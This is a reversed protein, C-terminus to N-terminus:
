QHKNNEKSRVFAIIKQWDERGLYHLGKRLHYGINGDHFTDGVSPLKDNCIFGVVGLQEYFKSAACCNLFESEPDAWQDQSSSSVYVYRPAITALLYHQDFLMSDEKNAYNEYNPCFWYGYCNCIAAIDEGQKNRSIAAGSCGSNNSHVFTFRPDTAAALLATKGLRSHGIAIARSIDLCDLTQAYDMVRHMAWAWMAIKGPSSPARKGHDFLIDAFGDTFDSNDDTVDKYYLYMVAFGNDIVEEIPIYRNPLDEFFGINVFFPHKGASTPIVAHFPFSFTKNNIEVTVNIKDINAKGACFNPIVDKEISFSLKDPQKPLYGYEERLLIDLMEERTKFDPLKKNKLLNDIM